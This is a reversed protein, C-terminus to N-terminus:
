LYSHILSHTHANRQIPAFPSPNPSAHAPFPTYRYQVPKYIYTHAANGTNTQM